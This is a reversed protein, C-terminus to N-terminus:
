KQKKKRKIKCQQQKSKAPKKFVRTTRNDKADKQKQSLVRRRKRRGMNGSNPETQSAYLVCVHGCTRKIQMCLGDPCRIQGVVFGNEVRMFTFRTGLAESKESYIMHDAEVM